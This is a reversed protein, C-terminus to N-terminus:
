AQAVWAWYEAARVAAKADERKQIISLVWVMLICPVAAVLVLSFVLGIFAFIAIDM